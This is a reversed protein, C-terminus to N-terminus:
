KEYKIEPCELWHTWDYEELKTEVIGGILGTENLRHERCTCEIVMGSGLYVGVHGPRWLVLGPREPLEEVPGKVEAAEFLEKTSYDVSKTFYATNGQHYDNWIYSKIVGFCDWGRLGRDALSKRVGTRAPTYWDPYKRVLKDIWERTIYEGCGDWVYMHPVSKMKKMFAVLGEATPVYPKKEEM